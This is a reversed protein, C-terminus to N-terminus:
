YETNEEIMKELDRRRVRVCGGIRVVPVKKAYVLEYAKTRGIGLM